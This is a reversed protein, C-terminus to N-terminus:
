QSRSNLADTLKSITNALVLMANTLNQSATINELHAKQIDAQRKEYDNPAAATATPQPTPSAVLTPPATILVREIDFYQTGSKGTKQVASYRYGDLDFPGYNTPYFGDGTGRFKTVLEANAERKFLSWYVHEKNQYIKWELPM